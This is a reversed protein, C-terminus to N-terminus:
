PHKQLQRQRHGSGQAVCDRLRGKQLHTTDSLPQHAVVEANRACLFWPSHAVFATFMRLIDIQGHAPCLNSYLITTPKM